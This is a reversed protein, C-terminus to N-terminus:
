IELEFSCFYGALIKGGETTEHQQTKYIHPHINFIYSGWNSESLCGFIVFRLAGNEYISM